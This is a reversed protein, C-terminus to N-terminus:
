CATELYHGLRRMAERLSDGSRAFCVRVFGEGSEGFATGPATGVGAEDILRFAAETSDSLGAVRFFAYFAGAPPAYTVRNNGAFGESVIARGEAARAIMHRVFWDGEDLAAVGAVQMFEAIGSTSYQILNEVTQKITASAHLWGMRWGTMAWNKSFTGVYLIRDSPEAIDLFSPARASGDYVFRSYIEDAIIWLDHRRALTLVAELTALDAVFGTPNAPSNIFIARTAPTVAAELDAVELSFRGAEERLPVPVPVSGQVLVAGSVNPWCPSPVLIEEGAKLALRAALQIGQMGSGTVFFSEPDFVKGFQGEYYRALAERLPAIGRSHTYFTAGDAMARQAAEIIFRPTPLDSEGAWLPILGPKGRGHNFAAIIGSQPAARAPESLGGFHRDM